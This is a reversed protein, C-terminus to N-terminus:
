QRACPRTPSCPVSWSRPLSRAAGAGARPRSVPATGDDVHTPERHRGGRPGARVHTFSVPVSVTRWVSPRSTIEERRLSAATEARRVASVPQVVLAWGLWGFAEADGRQFPGDTRALDQARQALVVILIPYAVTFVTELEVAMAGLTPATRGVVLSTGEVMALRSWSCDRICGCRRVGPAGHALREANQRNLSASSVPNSGMLSREWCAKWTQPTTDPRPESTGVQTRAGPGAVASRPLRPRILSRSLSSTPRPSGNLPTALGGAGFRQGACVTNSTPRRRWSQCSNPM